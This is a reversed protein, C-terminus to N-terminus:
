PPASRLLRGAPVPLVALAGTEEPAPWEPRVRLEHPSVEVLLTPQWSWGDDPQRADTVGRPLPSPLRCWWRRALLALGTATLLATAEDAPLPGGAPTGALTMPVVLDVGDAAPALYGVREGDDTRHVVEWSTTM